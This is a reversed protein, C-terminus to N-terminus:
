FIPFFDKFPNKPILHKIYAGTKPKSDVIGHSRFTQMAERLINRSIGLDKVLFQETPLPDGQTLNNSVIFNQIYKIVANKTSIKEIKGSTEM